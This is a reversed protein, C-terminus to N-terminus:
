ARPLYGDEVARQYLDIKTPAARGVKQYKERIRDVYSKVAGESIALRRAVSKLPMGGAYWQLTQLEQPSLKPRSQAPEALLALALAQTMYTGGGHVEKIAQVMEAAAASKPVYGLAGARLAERVVAARQNESVVVVKSGASALAAVNADVTTDDGLNLDLLVVDAGWGLGARLEEVTAAADLVVVDASRAALWAVLGERVLEHDDVLAVTIPSVDYTAPLLAATVAADPGLTWRDAARCQGRKQPM